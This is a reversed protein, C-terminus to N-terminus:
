QEKEEKYFFKKIATEDGIDVYYKDDGNMTLFRTDASRLSEVIGTAFKSKNTADTFTNIIDISNISDVLNKCSCGQGFSKAFLHVM